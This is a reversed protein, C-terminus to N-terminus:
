SASIHDSSSARRRKLWVMAHLVGWFRLVYRTYIYIYINGHNIRKRTSVNLAHVYIYIRTDIRRRGPDRSAGPYVVLAYRM